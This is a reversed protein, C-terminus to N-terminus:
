GQGRTPESRPMVFRPRRVLGRREAAGGQIAESIETVFKQRMARDFDAYGNAPLIFAGEGGMVYKTYWGELNLRERSELPKLYQMGGGPARYAGEGVIRDPEEIIPLGNITVGKAVLDDRASITAEETSCNDVGDGSVDIVVRSAPVPLNGVINDSVFRFMRALCTFEGTYRPLNRVRDAVATADAKSSIRVWPIATESKDSWALLSVLIAHHQGSTMTAVVAPDELANAIGNMQLHFRKDDVSESIDVSVILAIDVDGGAGAAALSTIGWATASALAVLLAAAHWGSLRGATGSLQRAIQQTM